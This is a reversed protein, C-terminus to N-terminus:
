TSSYIVTWKMQRCNGSWNIVFLAQKNGPLFLLLTMIKLIVGLCMPVPAVPLKWLPALNGITPHTSPNINPNLLDFKPPNCCKKFCSSICNKQFFSTIHLLYSSCVGWSQGRTSAEGRIMRGAIQSVQHAAVPGICVSPSTFYACIQFLSPLFVESILAPTHAYYQVVRKSLKWM